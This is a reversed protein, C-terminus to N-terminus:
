GGVVSLPHPLPMWLPGMLALVPDEACLLSPPLLLPLLKLTPHSLCQHFEKKRMLLMM